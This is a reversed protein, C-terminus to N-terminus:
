FPIPGASQDQSYQVPAAQQQVPAPAPQAPQNERMYEAMADTAARQFAYYVEKDPFSLHPRYKEEGNSNTYKESPMNFWQKGNSNFWSAGHIVMGVKVLEMDVFGVLSGKQYEKFKVIKISSM